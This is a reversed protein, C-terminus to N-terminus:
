SAKRAVCVSSGVLLSFLCRPLPVLILPPPAFTEVRAREGGDACREGRRPGKGSVGAAAAGGRGCLAKAAPECTGVHEQGEAGLRASRGCGLLAAGGAAEWPHPSGRPPGAGSGRGRACEGLDRTGEEQTFIWPPNTAYLSTTNPNAHKKGFFKSFTGQVTQNKKM